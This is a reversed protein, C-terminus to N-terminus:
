VREQGTVLLKAQLMRQSRPWAALARARVAKAPSHGHHLVVKYQLVGLLVAPQM